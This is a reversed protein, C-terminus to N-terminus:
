GVIHLGSVTQLIQSNVDQPVRTIGNGNGNRKCGIGSSSVPKGVNRIRLIKGSNPSHANRRLGFCVLQRFAPFRIASCYCNGPQRPEALDAVRMDWCSNSRNWNAAQPM